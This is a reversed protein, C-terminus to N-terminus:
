EEDVVEYDSEQTASKEQGTKATKAYLETSIQYITSTLQETANKIAESDTAKLAERVNEIESRVKSKNAEDIKDGMDKLTKEATYIMSDANNRIDAEEKKKRDDEGHAEADKVMRNIE